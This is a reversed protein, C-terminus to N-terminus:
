TPKALRTRFIIEDRSIDEFILLERGPLDLLNGRSVRIEGGAADTLLIRSHLLDREAKLARDMWYRAMGAMDDAHARERELEDILNM